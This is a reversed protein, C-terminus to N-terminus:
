GNKVCSSINRVFKYDKKNIYDLMAENTRAVDSYLIYSNGCLGGLFYAGCHTQVLVVEGGNPRLFVDGPNLKKVTYADLEKELNAKRINLTSLAENCIGIENEVMQKTRM